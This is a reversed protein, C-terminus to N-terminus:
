QLRTAPFTPSPAYVMVSMGVYAGKEGEREMKWGCVCVCARASNSRVRGQNLVYGGKLQLVATVVHVLLWGGEWGSGLKIM